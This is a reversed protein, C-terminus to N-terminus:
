AVVLPLCVVFQFNLFSVPCLRLSSHQSEKLSAMDHQLNAFFSLRGPSKFYMFPSCSFALTHTYLQIYIESRVTVHEQRIMSFNRSELFTHGIDGGGHINKGPVMVGIGTVEVWTKKTLTPSHFIHSKNIFHTCM